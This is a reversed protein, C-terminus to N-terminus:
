ASRTRAATSRRSRRRTCAPRSRAAPRGDGAGPGPGVLAVQTRYFDRASGDDEVSEVRLYTRGGRDVFSAEIGGSEEGPFTWGVMQSFFTSFGDWGIWSKAWRGTSDSTWAVSRGLGYQWQALLPDDRATVLM